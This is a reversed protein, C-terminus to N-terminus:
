KRPLGLGRQAIINRQVENTGGGFRHFPALRYLHELQGLLPASKDHKNLQGYMETIQLGYDAVKTILETAFVKMMSAEASAEKGSDMMTAGRYGFLLAVELDIHLEALRSRVEPRYIILEGDSVTHKCFKVLEDFTRRLTASSGMVIRESDLASTLIRWGLNLEGILHNRPVRVNEFFVENTTHEGWTHQEVLTVGPADNPIIIVSIGKHKPAEPDTRVATWQHSVRHGFTNWTKQGNVIWDDGDLVAKTQLSALDTGANPESYGLAFDIEGNIIPALWDRRNDETGYKFLAPAVISVAAGFPHPAGAYRFEEFFIFKEVASLGLGGYEKPWSMAAWGKEVIKRKYEQELPGAAKDEHEEVEQLFEPTIVEKLFNRIELQWALQGETLQFRM